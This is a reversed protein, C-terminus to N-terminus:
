PASSRTRLQKLLEQAARELQPDRGALYDEPTIEVYLDQDPLYFDPCAAEIVRGDEDTELPFSHPEYEWPIGYYDLLLAVERESTNQFRPPETGRFAQFGHTEQTM